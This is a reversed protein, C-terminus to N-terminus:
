CCCRRSRRGKVSYMHARARTYTHTNEVILLLMTRQKTKSHIVHTHTYTHTSAVILMLIMQQSVHLLFMCIRTQTYVHIFNAQMSHIRLHMDIRYTGFGAILYFMVHVCACHYKVRLLHASCKKKLSHINKQFPCTKLARLVCPTTDNHLDDHKKTSQHSLM